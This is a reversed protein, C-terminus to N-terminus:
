AAIREVVESILGSMLASVLWDVNFLGQMRRAELTQRQIDGRLQTVLDATSGM